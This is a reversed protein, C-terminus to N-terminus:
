AALAEKLLTHVAKPDVDQSIFAQGIGRTLIFTIRGASVKKDQGMHAMLRDATWSADKIGTLSVPLNVASLHSKVSQVDDDTCYGLSHSLAYAMVIGIAVAEGHLLTDGYGSEAEFAHAFTHGLNLLARQGAEHEDAAVIAAKAKCCIEVAQKRAHHDGDCLAAGNQKLWNFFPADNILGYKVIEGYGARIERDPLTDLTTIDALVLSPQHFAGVLNKGHKTNIGTKGGVSSDVQALLTTPIQIFDLGRLAIAAAFGTIDGIVGGGLAVLTTDRAIRADLCQDLLNELHAFDKTQEGAPLVISQAQINAGSLSQELIKLYLPAVNSDTIVIARPQKLVAAITSGANSLLNEGILIDYSRSGLDVRVTAPETGSASAASLPANTM